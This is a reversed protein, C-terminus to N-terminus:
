LVKLKVLIEKKERQKLVSAYILQNPNQIQNQLGHHIKLITKM